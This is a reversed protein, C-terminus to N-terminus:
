PNVVETATMLPSNFTASPTNTTASPTARAASPTALSMTPSTVNPSFSRCLSPLCNNMIGSSNFKALLIDALGTGYSFTYGWVVYGGDKAQIVDNGRDAGAGGWLKSWSLNGNMGFKAFILEHDAGYSNTSGTIVYGNDNTQILAPSIDDASGGLTRTWTQDGNADFKSILVDYDTVGFSNTYGVTAYGGDSTQIIRWFADDGTGGYVKNWLLNGDTDYRLLVGDSLGAGYSETRGAVLYGGDSTEIVRNAEDYGAGGWTKNWILEGSSSFKALYVAGASGATAGSVVFDGNRTSTIGFGLDTGSRGLTKNWMLEGNLSLKVLFVDAGGAGFSESYGTLVYGDSIKIIQGAWDIGAGGWIKNWILNGNESYKSILADENGASFSKVIGATLYGGDDSHLISTGFDDAAGGWVKALTGSFVRKPVTGKSVNYAINNKIASLSFDDYPPLSNYILVIDASPKICYLTDSPGTPCYNNDAGPPMSTPFNGYEVQYMKLKKSINTLESQLTAEGAKSTVGNYTAIIIVTLIGIVVIVLILEVVTFGASGKNNHKTVVIM